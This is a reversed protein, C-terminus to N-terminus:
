RRAPTAVGNVVNPLPEGRVALAATQAVSTRLRTAAPVSASAIHATFVVNELTRLPHDLGIPEPNSVDLGAGALQGSQLAEVLAATDVLDGRAVNILLAGPKFRGLRTRDIIGRTSATSPCHLSVVDSSEILRDLEAPECGARTIDAAPVHPDFVQVPCKFAALRGAM